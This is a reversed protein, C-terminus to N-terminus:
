VFFYPTLLHQILENKLDFVEYDRSSYLVMTYVYVSKQHVTRGATRERERGHERRGRESIGCDGGSWDTARARQAGAESIGMLARGAMLAAGTRRGRQQELSLRSWDAMGSGEM